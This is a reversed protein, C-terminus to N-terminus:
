WAAREQKSRAPRAIGGRTREAPAVLLALDHPHPIVILLTSKMGEHDAVSCALDLVDTWEAADAELTRM